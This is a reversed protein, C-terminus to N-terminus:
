RRVSREQPPHLKTFFGEENVTWGGRLAMGKYSRGLKETSSAVGKGPKALASAVYGVEVKNKGLHGFGHRLVSRLGASGKSTGRSREPTHIMGITAEGGGFHSWRMYPGEPHRLTVNKTVGRIGIPLHVGTQILYDMGNRLVGTRQAFERLRALFAKRDM